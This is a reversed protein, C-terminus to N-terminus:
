GVVSFFVDEEEGATAILVFYCELNRPITQLPRPTAKTSFHSRCPHLSGTAATTLLTFSSTRSEGGDYVSYDLVNKVDYVTVGSNVYLDPHTIPYGVVIGEGSPFKLRCTIVRVVGIRNRGGSQVAVESQNHTGKRGWDGVVLVRLSGDDGAPHQLRQLEAVAVGLCLGFTVALKLSLLLMSQNKLSPAM